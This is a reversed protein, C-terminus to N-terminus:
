GEPQARRRPRRVDGRAPGPGEALCETLASMPTAVRGGRRRGRRRPSHVCCLGFRLVCDLMRGGARVHVPRRYRRRQGESTRQRRGFIGGAPPSRSSIGTRCLNPGWVVAREDERRPPWGSRHAEAPRARTADDGTM